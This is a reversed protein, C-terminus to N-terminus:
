DGEGRDKKKIGKKNIATPTAPRDGTGPPLRTVRSLIDIALRDSGIGVIIRQTKPDRAIVRNKEEVIPVVKPKKPM